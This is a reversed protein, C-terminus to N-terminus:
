RPSHSPQLERVKQEVQEILNDKLATVLQAQSEYEYIPLVWPYRQFHDRFMPYPKQGKLIIPQVAVSPLNPIFSMLEQPISNPDTLDAIVFRALHALTVVTETLDRNSPEDFDFLIPLYGRKRLEDRIAELIVKREPKFRGLILGARATITDIVDRIKSNKLILYIFQAVELNDVEISPENYNAMRLGSQNTEADTTIGWVSVGYINCNKLIAGELNTEVLTARMLNANSLDADSLNTSRLNADKLNADNLRARSLNARKLNADSLDAGRLDAGDLDAFELITNALAAGSFDVGSLKTRNGKNLSQQSDYLGLFNVRFFKPRETPNDRRWQNWYPVGKKLIEFHDNNM